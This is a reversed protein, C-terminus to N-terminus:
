CKFGKIKARLTNTNKTRHASYVAIIKRFLM